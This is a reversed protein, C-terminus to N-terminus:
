LRADNWRVNKRFIAGGLLARGASVLSHLRDSNMNGALCLWAALKGYTLPSAVDMEAWTQLEFASYLFSLMGSSPPYAAFQGSNWFAPMRRIPEDDQASYNWCPFLSIQPGKEGRGAESFCQDWCGGIIKQLIRGAAKRPWAWCITVCLSSSSSPGTPSACRWWECIFTKIIRHGAPVVGLPMAPFTVCLGRNWNLSGLPVKTGPLSTTQRLMHHLGCSFLAISCPFLELPLSHSTCAKHRGSPGLVWLWLFSFPCNTRM